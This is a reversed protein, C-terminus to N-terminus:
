FLGNSRLSCAYKIADMHARYDTGAKLLIRVRRIDVRVQLTKGLGMADALICGKLIIDAVIISTQTNESRVTGKM